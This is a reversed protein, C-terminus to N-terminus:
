IRQLVFIEKAEAGFPLLTGRSDLECVLRFRLVPFVVNRIRQWQTHVSSVQRGDLNPQM